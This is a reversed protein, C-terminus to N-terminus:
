NRRTSASRAIPDYENARDISEVKNIITLEHHVYMRVIIEKETRREGVLVSLLRRKTQLKKAASSLLPDHM